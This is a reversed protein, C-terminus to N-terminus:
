RKLNIWPKRLIRKEKKDLFRLRVKLCERAQPQHLLHKKKKIQTMTQKVESPSKLNAKCLVPSSRNNKNFGNQSRLDKRIIRRLHRRKVKIVRKLLKRQLSQLRNSNKIQHLLNRVTLKQHNRQMKSLKRIRKIYVLNIPNKHLLKPHNVSPQNLLHHNKRAKLKAKILNALQLKRLMHLIKSIVRTLCMARTLLMVKILCLVTM